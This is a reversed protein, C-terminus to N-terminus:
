KLSFRKERIFSISGVQCNEIDWFVGIPPLHNPTSPMKAPSDHHLLSCDHRCYGFLVSSSAKSDVKSGSNNELKSDCLSSNPVPSSLKQASLLQILKENLGEIEDNDETCPTRCDPSKEGAM